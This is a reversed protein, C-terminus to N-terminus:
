SIHNISIGAIKQAKSKFSRFISAFTQILLLILKITLTRLM